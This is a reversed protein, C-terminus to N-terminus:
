HEKSIDSLAKWKLLMDPQIWVANINVSHM